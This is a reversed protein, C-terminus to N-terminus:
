KSRLRSIKRSATNKKIRDSKAARDLKSELTILIKDAEERKKESILTRAKKTITRIESIAAKNRDHKKEDQRLSKIAAKKNAM